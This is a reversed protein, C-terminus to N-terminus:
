AHAVEQRRARRYRRLWMLFIVSGWLPLTLVAMALVVFPFFLAQLVIRPM